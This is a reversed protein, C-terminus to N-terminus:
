DGTGYNDFNTPTLGDRSIVKVDDGKGSASEGFSGADAQKSRSSQDSENVRPIKRAPGVLSAATRRTGPGYHKNDGPISTPLPQAPNRSLNEAM